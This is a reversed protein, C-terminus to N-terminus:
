ELQDFTFDDDINKKFKKKSIEIMRKLAIYIKIYNM